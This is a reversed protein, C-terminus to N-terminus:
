FLGWAGLFALPCLALVADLIVALISWWSLGALQQPAQPWGKISNNLGPDGEDQEEGKSDKSNNNDDGRLLLPDGTTPTLAGWGATDVDAAPVRRHGYEM